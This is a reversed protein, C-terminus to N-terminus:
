YCIHRLQRFANIRGTCTCTITLYVEGGTYFKFGGNEAKVKNFFITDFAANYTFSVCFYLVTICKASSKGQHIMHLDAIYHYLVISIM